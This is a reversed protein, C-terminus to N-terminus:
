NGDVQEVLKRYQEADMIGADGDDPAHADQWGRFVIWTDKTLMDRIQEPHLGITIGNAIM